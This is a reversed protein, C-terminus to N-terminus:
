FKRGGQGKMDPSLYLTPMGVVKIIITATITVFM